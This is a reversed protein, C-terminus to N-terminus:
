QQLHRIETNNDNFHRKKLFYLSYLFTVFTIITVIIVAIVFIIFSWTSIKESKYERDTILTIKKMYSEYHEHHERYVIRIMITQFKIVKWYLYSEGFTFLFKMNQILVKTYSNSRLNGYLKPDWLKPDWYGNWFFLELM